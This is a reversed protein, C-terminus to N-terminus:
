KGVGMLSRLPLSSPATTAAAGAPALSVMISDYSQSASTVTMTKSGTSQDANTDALAWGASPQNRIDTNAGATLSAQNGGNIIWFLWSNVTNVTLSQSYSTVAPGQDQNGTNDPTTSQNVGNYSGVMTHRFTKAPSISAQVTQSGTQPNLILYVWTDGQGQGTFAAIQTISDSTGSYTVTPTAGSGAVDLGVVLARNSGAGVTLTVSMDTGSSNNASFGGANDFAIAM